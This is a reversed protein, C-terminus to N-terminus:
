KHSHQTKMESHLSERMAAQLPWEGITISPNRKAHSRKNSLM